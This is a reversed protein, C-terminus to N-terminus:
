VKNIHHFKLSDCSWLLLDSETSIIKTFVDQLVYHLRSSFSEHYCSGESSCWWFFHNRESEAQKIIKMYKSILLIWTMASVNDVQEHFCYEYPVNHATFWWHRPWFQKFPLSHSQRLSIETHSNSLLLTPATVQSFAHLMWEYETINSWLIPTQRLPWEEQAGTSTSGTETARQEGWWGWGWVADKM